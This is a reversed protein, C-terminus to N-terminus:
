LPGGVSPKDDTSGFGSEGRETDTLKNLPSFVVNDVNLKLQGVYEGRKLVISESTSLNTVGVKIEGVFDQDVVGPFVALSKALCSSRPFIVANSGLPLQLKFGTPIWRSQGPELRTDTDVPLDWGASHVTGKRLRFASTKVDFDNEFHGVYVYNVLTSRSFLEAFAEFVARETDQFSSVLSTKFHCAAALERFVLVQSKIYRAGLLDLRDHARTAMRESLETENKPLVVLVDFTHSMKSLTRQAVRRVADRIEDETMKGELHQFVYWYLLNDFISRDHVHNSRFKSMVHSPYELELEPHDMKEKFEPYRQCHEHYDGAIVPLGRSKWLRLASTKFLCAPGTLVYFKSM